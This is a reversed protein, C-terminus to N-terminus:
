PKGCKKSCITRRNAKKHSQNTDFKLFSTDSRYKCLTGDMDFVVGELRMGHDTTQENRPLRLPAFSHSARQRAGDASMTSVLKLSHHVSSRAITGSAYRLMQRHKSKHECLSPNDFSGGFYSPPSSFSKESGFCTVRYRRTSVKESYRYRLEDIFRSIVNSFTENAYWSGLITVSSIRVANRSERLITFKARFVRTCQPRSPCIRIPIQNPEGPECHNSWSASSTTCRSPYIPKTM